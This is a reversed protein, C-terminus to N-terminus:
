QHDELNAKIQMVLENLTLPVRDFQFGNGSLRQAFLGTTPEDLHHQRLWRRDKFLLRPTEHKILKGKEMVLVDDAYQAVDDMNHTILIVTHGQKQYDTFLQLMQKQGSPDLGAAPEDLCLVDPECAMVGAIAVRRMQGGSLDFPSQKAVEKPLGVKELWKYAKQEAEQPSLGFNQPGFAIDKIVTEEFLQSEPFQFVLSVKHRLPKLGKNTTEPTIKLDGITIEGQTPKLLADFHQMLTSKGSGTHGILAIFHGEELKFSVDDLSKVALPTNPAYVYSVHKFEIAM